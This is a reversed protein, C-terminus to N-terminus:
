GKPKMNNVPSHLLDLLNFDPIGQLGERLAQSVSAVRLRRADAGSAFAVLGVQLLEVGTQNGALLQGVAADVVHQSRLAM